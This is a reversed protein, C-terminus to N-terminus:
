VQEPEGSRAAVLKLMEQVSQAASGLQASDPISIFQAQELANRV